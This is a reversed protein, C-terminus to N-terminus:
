PFEECSVPPSENKQAEFRGTTNKEHTKSGREPKTQCNKVWSVVLLSIAVAVKELEMAGWFCGLFNCSTPFFHGHHSKQNKNTRTQSALCTGIKTPPFNASIYTTKSTIIM